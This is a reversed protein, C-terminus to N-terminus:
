YGAVTELRVFWEDILEDDSGTSITIKSKGGDPTQWIYQIKDM